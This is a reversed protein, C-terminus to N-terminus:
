MKLTRGGDVCLMQGTVFPASVLYGVAGAIDEACGIRQLPIPVALQQAAELPAGAPPLAAGPSVANVRVEPALQLALSQTLTWLGGKSVCYPLHRALPRQAYIDVINVICGQHQRLTTELHLATLLPAKLNLNLFEDWHQVSEQLSPTPYFMAASNILADVRSFQELVAECMPQVQDAQSLDAQFLAGRRGLAEVQQLTDQAQEHSGRYHLALDYGQRALQIAIAKGLRIGSGTVLAVKNMAGREKM